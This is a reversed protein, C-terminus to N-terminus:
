SASKGSSIKTVIKEEESVKKLALVCMFWSLGFLYGAVVDSLWHVNLYLRSLGSLLLLGINATIFLRRHTENRIYNGFIYIVLSFFIASMMAHGSPFSYSSAEILGNEPRMRHFIIKTTYSILAGGGVSFAIFIAVRKKGKFFLFLAGAISLIIVMTPSLLDTTLIITGNLSQTQLSLMETNLWADTKLMLGNDNNSVDAAIAIFLILLVISSIIFKTQKKVVDEKEEKENM